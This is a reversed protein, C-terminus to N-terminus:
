ADVQRDLALFNFALRCGIRVLIVRIRPISGRAAAHFAAINATVGYGINQLEFESELIQQPM